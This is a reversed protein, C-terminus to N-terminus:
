KTGGNEKKTLRNLVKAYEIRAKGLENSLNFMKNIISKCQAQKHPDTVKSAENAAAEVESKTKALQSESKKFNAFGLATILAPTGRKIIETTSKDVFSEVAKDDIGTSSSIMQILKRGKRMEADVNNQIQRLDFDIKAAGTESNAYNELNIHEDNHFMDRIMTGIDEFFKGLRAVMKKVWVVFGNPKNKDTNSSDSESVAEMCLASNLRMIDIEFQVAIPDKCETFVSEYEQFMSM